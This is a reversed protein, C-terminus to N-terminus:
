EFKNLLHKEMINKIEQSLTMAKKSEYDFHVLTTTGKSKLHEDQWCEQYVDFSSNGIRSIWTKIQVPMQLYIQELFDVNYNALILPWNELKLDPVFMKFIPIRASEFWAVLVTNSVHGLGDTEYFRVTYEESFM